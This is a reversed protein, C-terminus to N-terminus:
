NNARKMLLAKATIVDLEAQLVDEKSKTMEDVAKTFEELPLEGNKFKERALSYKDSIAQHNELQLQYSKIAKKFQVYLSLLEYKLETRSHIYEHEAKRLDIKAQRIKSPTTFISEFDLQINIGFKPVIGLANQTADTSQNFQFGLKLNRLFAIKSQFVNEQQRSIDEQKILLLPNTNLCFSLLSDYGTTDIHTM